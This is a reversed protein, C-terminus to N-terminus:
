IQSYFKWNWEGWSCRVKFKGNIFQFHIWFEWSPTNWIQTKKSFCKWKTNKKRESPYKKAGGMRSRRGENQRFEFLFKKMLVVVHFIFFSLFLHSLPHCVFFLTNTPLFPSMFSLYFKHTLKHLLYASGNLIPIM